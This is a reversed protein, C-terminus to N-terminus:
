PTQRRFSPEDPRGDARYRRACRISREGSLLPATARQHQVRSERPSCTPAPLATLRGEPRPALRLVQRLDGSGHGASRGDRRRVGLRRHVVRQAMKPIIFNSSMDAYAANYVDPFAPATGNQALGLLGTLIPNAGDFAQLKAQNKLVPGYIAVNFYANMFEPNSLHEFLALAAEQNPSSKTIARLQAHDALRARPVPRSRRSPAAM